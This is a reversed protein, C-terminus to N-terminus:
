KIKKWEKGDFMMREGTQPNTATTGKKISPTAMEPPTMGAAPPLNPGKPMPMDLISEDIGPVQSEASFTLPVRNAKDEMRAM